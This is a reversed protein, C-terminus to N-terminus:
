GHGTNIFAPYTSAIISPTISPYQRSHKGCLTFSSTTSLGKRGVGATNRESDNDGIRRQKSNSANGNKRSAFRGKRKRGAGSRKAVTTNMKNRGGGDSSNKRRSASPKWVARHM